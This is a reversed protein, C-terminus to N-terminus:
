TLDKSDLHQNLASNHGQRWILWFVFGSGGGLPLANLYLTINHSNLISVMLGGCITGSLICTWWTVKNYRTLMLYIPGGTIFTAFLIYIYIPPILYFYAYMDPYNKETPNLGTQLINVAAWIIPPVLPATLFALMTTIYIKMFKVLM